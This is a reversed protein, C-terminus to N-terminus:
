PGETKLPRKPPDVPGASEEEKGPQTERAM